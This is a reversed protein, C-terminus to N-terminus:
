EIIETNGDITANQITWGEPIGNIGTDWSTMNMNKVFIGTNAVGDVWGDTYDSLYEGTYIVLCKIYNLDSCNGFMQQYCSYANGFSTAPLEPATTLSSCEYFMYEYCGEALTTAPLIEPAATLNTCGWFMSDYCFEALTTAPLVLESADTLGTCEDFMRYGCYRTVASEPHEYNWFYNANGSVSVDGGISFHTFMDDEFIDTMVGRYYIKDGTSLNHTNQSTENVWTNGDLSYQVNHGPAIVFLKVTSNDNATFTIFTDGIPPTSPQLLSEIISPDVEFPLEHSDDSLTLEYRNPDSANVGTGATGATCEVYNDYGLFWYHNNADRIIVASANMMLAMIEIRKVTEMKFFQMYVENTFYSAATESTNLTSTLSGTNKMLKYEYFQKGEKMVITLLSTGSDVSLSAIDDYHAILVEKIGGFSPSKCLNNLGRLTYAKCTM